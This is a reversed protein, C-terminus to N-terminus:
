RCDKLYVPKFSDAPVFHHKKNCGDSGMGRFVIFEFRYILM